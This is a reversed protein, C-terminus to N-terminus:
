IGLKRCIYEWREEPLKTGIVKVVESSVLSGIGGAEELTKGAVCGYLFGAAWLDGAGTTDVADAMVPPIRRIGDAGAIISGRRGIKVVAIECERLLKGALEEEAFDGLYERAEDENALVIDVYQPIVTRLKERFSRVVEFSALDLAIRCGAAKACRLVADFYDTMFIQYGEIYVLSYRGFDIAAADAASLLQSAGFHTRMTRESDPTILVACRGTAAEGTHLFAETGGGLEALSRCYLDGYSDNGVKGLMSVPVGLRALGFITNGAAGGPVISCRDGLEAIWSDQLQSPVLQMGGKEGPVKELFADEVRALIDLLPAGVGLIPKMEKM